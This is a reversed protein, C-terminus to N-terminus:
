LLQVCNIKKIDKSGLDNYYDRCKEDYECYFILTYSMNEIEPLESLCLFRNSSNFDKEIEIKMVEVKPINFYRTIIIERHRSEIISYITM